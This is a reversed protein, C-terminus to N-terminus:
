AARVLRCADNESGLHMIKHDAKYVDIETQSCLGGASIRLPAALKYSWGAKLNIRAQHAVGALDPDLVEVAEGSKDVSSLVVIQDNTSFAKARLDLLQRQFDFYVTHAVVQDLAASARPMVVAMALAMIALVIMIEFLSYGRRRQVIM